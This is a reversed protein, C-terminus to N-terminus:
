SEAIVRVDENNSRLEFNKLLPIRGWRGNYMSLSAYRINYVTNPSGVLDFVSYKVM